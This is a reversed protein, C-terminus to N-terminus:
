PQGNFNSGAVAVGNIKSISDGPLVGSCIDPKQILGVIAPTNDGLRDSPLLSMGITPVHFSLSFERM